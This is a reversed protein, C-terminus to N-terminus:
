IAPFRPQAYDVVARGIAVWNGQYPHMYSRAVSRLKSDCPVHTM